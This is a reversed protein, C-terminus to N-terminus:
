MRWNMSTIIEFFWVMERSSSLSSSTMMLLYPRSTFKWALWELSLNKMDRQIHPGQVCVVGVHRETSSQM